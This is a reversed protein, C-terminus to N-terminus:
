TSELDVFTPERTIHWCSGLASNAAVNKNLSIIATMPIEIVNQRRNSNNFMFIFEPDAASLVRDTEVDEIPLLESIAPIFEFRGRVWAMLLSEKDVSHKVYSINCFDSTSLKMAKIVVGVAIMM